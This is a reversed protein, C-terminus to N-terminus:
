ESDGPGVDPLVKGLFATSVQVAALPTTDIDIHSRKLKKGPSLCQSYYANGYSCTWDSRVVLITLLWIVLLAICRVGPLLNKTRSTASSTLM